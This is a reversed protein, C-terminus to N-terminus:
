SARLDKWRKLIDEPLDVVEARDDWSASASPMLRRMTECKEVLDRVYTEVLDPLGLTLAARARDKRANIRWNNVADAVAVAQELHSLAREADQHHYHYFNGLSCHVLPDDPYQEIQEWYLAELEDYRKSRIFQSKLASNFLLIEEKCTALARRELIIDIRKQADHESSRLEREWATFSQLRDNFDTM